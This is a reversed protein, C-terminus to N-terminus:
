SGLMRACEVLVGCLGAIMEERSPLVLPEGAAGVVLDDVVVCGRSPLFWDDGYGWNGSIQM